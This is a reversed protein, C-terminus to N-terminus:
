STIPGDTALGFEEEAMRLLEGFIESQLYALPLAFRRENTTYVVFHVKEEVLQVKKLHNNNMPFSIKKKRAMKVLKKTSIM